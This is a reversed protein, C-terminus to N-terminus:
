FEAAHDPRADVGVYLTPGGALSGICVVEGRKLVVSRMTEIRTGSRASADPLIEVTAAAGVFSMRVGDAELGGAGPDNGVLLNAVRLAIPDLAGSIWGARGLDQVTTMLGPKLVHLAPKV